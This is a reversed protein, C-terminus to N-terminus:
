VEMLLYGPVNAEEGFTLRELSGPIHIDRFVQREHYHGNLKLAGPWVDNIADLPFEINRGRPMETTESGPTIGAINLHGMVAKPHRPNALAQHRVFEEPDYAHSRPTFPLFVVQADGVLRLCPAAIVEARPTYNVPSLVNSGHGDEIVDHNGVLWYSPIDLTSALDCARDVARHARNTAPDCLDGLFIFADVENADVADLLEETARELDDFREVGATVADLHWDSTVLAKM